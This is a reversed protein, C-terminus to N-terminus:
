KATVSTDPASGSPYLGIEILSLAIVLTMKRPVKPVKMGELVKYKELILHTCKSVKDIM